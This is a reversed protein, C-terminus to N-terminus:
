SGYLGSPWYVRHYRMWELKDFSPCSYKIHLIFSELTEPFCQPQRGVKTIYEQPSLSFTPLNSTIAGGASESTWVQLPMLNIRGLTFDFPLFSPKEPAVVQPQNKCNSDTVHSSQSNHVGLFVTKWWKCTKLVSPTKKDQSNEIIIPPSRAPSRMSYM